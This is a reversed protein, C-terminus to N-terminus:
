CDNEVWVWKAKYPMFHFSSKFQRLGKGAGLWMDYFAYKPASQSNRNCSKYKNTSSVLLFMVGNRLHEQHGLIRSYVFADGLNPAHTYAVLLSSDDFIGFTCERNEHALNSIVDHDRYNIGIKRGQRTNTSLNIMLIEEIKEEPNFKKFYYGKSLASNCKRRVTSFRSGKLNVVDYDDLDLLMAGFYKKSVWPVLRHPKNFSLYAARATEGGYMNLTISKSNRIKKISLYDYSFISIM